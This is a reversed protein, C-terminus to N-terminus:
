LLVPAVITAAAATIFLIIQFWVHPSSFMSSLSM